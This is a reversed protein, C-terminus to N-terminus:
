IKYAANGLKLKQGSTLEKGNSIDILMKKLEDNTIDGFANDLDGSGKAAPASQGKSMFGQTGFNGISDKANRIKQIGAVEKDIIKAAGAAVDHTAQAGKAIVNATKEAGTAVAQGAAQAINKSGQVGKATAQGATFAAKGVPNAPASTQGAAAPPADTTQTVPGVSKVGGGTSGSAGKANPTGLKAAATGTQSASAPSAAQVPQKAPPAKEYIIERIKM